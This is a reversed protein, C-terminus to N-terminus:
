AMPPVGFQTPRPRHRQRLCQSRRCGSAWSSIEDVAVPDPNGDSARTRHFEFWAEFVPREGLVFPPEHRGPDELDEVM